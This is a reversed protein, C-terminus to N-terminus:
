KASQIKYGNVTVKAYLKKAEDVISVEYYCTTKGEKVCKAEAYIMDCAVPKFYTIQASLSITSDEQLNSAVAFTFDAMTFLAGGMVNGMANKHANQIKMKCLAYQKDIAVIEIGTTQTAFSDQAFYTRAEELTKM